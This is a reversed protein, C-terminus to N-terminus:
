ASKDKEDSRNESDTADTAAETESEGVGAREVEEVPAEADAAKTAPAKNDAVVERLFGEGVRYATKLGKVVLARDTFDEGYDILGDLNAFTPDLRWLRRLARNKLEPPVGAKMFPTFDSNKDLSEIDPLTAADVVDGEAAGAPASATETETAEDDPRPAEGDPRPAEDDAVPTAGGRGAQRNSDLKRRSWRGIFGRDEAVASDGM